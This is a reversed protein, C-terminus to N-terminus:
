FRHQRPSPCIASSFACARRVACPAPDSSPVLGSLGDERGLSPGDSIAAIDRLPSRLKASDSGSPPLPDPILKNLRAESEDCAQSKPLCGAANEEVAVQLISCAAPLIPHENRERRPGESGIALAPGPGTDGVPHPRSSEVQASESL